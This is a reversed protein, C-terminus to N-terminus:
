YARNEPINKLHARTDSFFQHMLLRDTPSINLASDRVATSDMNGPILTYSVKPVQKKYVWVPVYAINKLYTKDTTKVLTIETMIGGNKYRDRQNSIYNGLSYAVWVSDRNEAPLKKIPQVVHPHGGIILDAGHKVSFEAVMKQEPSENRQYELGWHYTAIIFDVGLSKAKKLDTRIVATDIQNVVTGTPVPIGNTGYTYNLMAIKIGKVEKVFPYQAQSEKANRYTGFHEIHLSDLVDLTRKVGKTGKDCTHNNATQLVDFGADVLAAALADPSSFTPYGTYPPGALTVELNAIALDASSIYPKVFRYNDRYEYTNGSQLAAKFQPEHGMVDGAFVLKIETSDPPPPTRSEWLAAPVPLHAKPFYFECTCIAAAGLFSLYLLKM